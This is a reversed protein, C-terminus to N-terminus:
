WYWDSQCIKSISLVPLTFRYRWSACDLSMYITMTRQVNRMAKLRPCQDFYEFVETILLLSFDVYYLRVQYYTTFGLSSWFWIDLSGTASVTFSLIYFYPNSLRSSWSNGIKRCDVSDVGPGLCWWITLFHQVFFTCLIVAHYFKALM